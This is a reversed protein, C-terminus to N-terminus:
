PKSSNSYAGRHRCQRTTHLAVDENRVPDNLRVLGFVALDVVNLDILHSPPHSSSSTRRWRNRDVVQSLKNLGYRLSDRFAQLHPYQQNREQRTSSVKDSKFKDCCRSAETAHQSGMHDKRGTSKGTIVKPRSLGGRLKASKPLSASGDSPPM